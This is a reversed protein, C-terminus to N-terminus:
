GEVKRLNGCPVVYLKGGIMVGHNRPSKRFCEKGAVIVLPGRNALTRRFVIAVTGELGHLPYLHCVKKGYWCQVRQGKRPNLMM